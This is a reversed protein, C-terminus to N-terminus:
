SDHDYKVTPSLNVHLISCHKAYLPCKPILIRFELRFLYGHINAFNEIKHLCHQFNWCPQIKNMKTNGSDMGKQSASLGEGM